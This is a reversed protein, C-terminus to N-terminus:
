IGSQSKRVKVVPSGTLGQCEFNDEDPFKRLIENHYVEPIYMVRFIGLLPCLNPQNYVSVVLPSIECLSFM